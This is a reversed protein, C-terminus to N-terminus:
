KGFQEPVGALSWELDAPPLYIGRRDVDSDTHGLGYATSGVIARYIVFRYLGAPDPGGPIEAQVHKFITLESREFWAEPGDAFRVRYGNNRLSRHNPCLAWM